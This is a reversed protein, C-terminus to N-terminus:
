YYIVDCYNLQIACIIFPDRIVILNCLNGNRWRWAWITRRCGDLVYLMNARKDFALGTTIVTNSLFNVGLDRRYYYFGQSASAGCLQVNKSGFFIGCSPDVVAGNLSKDSGLAVSFLDQVKTAQTSRGDWQVVFSYNGAGVLFHSNDFCDMPILFGIPPSDAVM